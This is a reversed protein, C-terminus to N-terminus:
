EKEGARFETWPEAPRSKLIGKMWGFQPHAALFAPADFPAGCAFGWRAAFAMRKALASDVVKADFTGAPSFPTGGGAAQPDDAAHGCLTRGSPNEKGLYEDYHDAEFRKAHEVDIKGAFDQMLRGWRVRRAVSSVRIDTDHADTELRLIRLDEAVNSGTFYGDKTTEFGVHKLGLELRAIENTKVDGLLWANAYGGNNGKKMIACWEGISAADQTARRMRVFEPIGKEDFGNFGGITTESGVLGADTLFFDTGSHIWGPATQMLVRHGRAPVLDVIVDFDAQPYGFMTNHGLVVGGGATMRGTAIFSSCSQKPPDPSKAQLKKKAEPWWYGELELYGNFAIMEDRTTAIGAAHMGSVIGDIEERDEADVKPSLIATSKAVLWKWEMGSQHRWDERRVRLAEAIEQALLYGHQFGRERPGGEVHLYIWGAREHRNARAIWGQQAPSLPPAADAGAGLAFFLALLMSLRSKM